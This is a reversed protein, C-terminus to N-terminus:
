ASSNCSHIVCISFWSGWLRTSFLINLLYILIHYSLWSYLSPSALSPPKSHFSPTLHLPLIIGPHANMFLLLLISTTFFSLSEPFVISIRALTRPSADQLCRLSPLMQGSPLPSGSNDQLPQDASPWSLNSPSSNPPKELFTPSKFWSLM